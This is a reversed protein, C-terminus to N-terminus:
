NKQKLTVTRFIYKSEEEGPILYNEPVTSTPIRVVVHEINEKNITGSVSRCASRDRLECQAPPVQSVELSFGDRRTADISIMATIGYGSARGENFAIEVGEGNKGFVAANAYPTNGSFTIDLNSGKLLKIVRDFREQRILINPRAAIETYILDTETGMELNEAALTGALEDLLNGIIERRREPEKTSKFEELQAAIPDVPAPKIERAPFNRYTEM